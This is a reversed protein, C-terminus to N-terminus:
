RACRPAIATTLIRADDALTQYGLVSHLGETDYGAAWATILM